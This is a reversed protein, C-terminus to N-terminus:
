LAPIIQLAIPPNDISYYPDLLQAPMLNTQFASNITELNGNKKLFSFGRFRKLKTLGDL